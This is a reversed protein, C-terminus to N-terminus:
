SILMTPDLLRRTLRGDNTFLLLGCSHYDLRGVPHLGDRQFHSPIESSLDRRNSEDCLSSIVGCPKYYVLIYPLNSENHSNNNNNNENDNSNNNNNNFHSHSKFDSSDLVDIGDVSINFDSTIQRSFSYEKIGNVSVRGSSLLNRVIKSSKFGNKILYKGISKKESRKKDM